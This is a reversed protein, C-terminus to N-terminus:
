AQEKRKEPKLMRILTRDGRKFHHYLAAAVHVVVIAILVMALVFHIDGAIDEQGEVGQLTAPIAFWGFVDVARGDATSILYGSIVLLLPILYLLAHATRAAIRERRSTTLARPSPQLSRWALRILLLIALLVGIARHLDPGKKYWPDYYDLSTMWLGLPLLGMIMVAMLWHLAIHVWGYGFESNNWSM